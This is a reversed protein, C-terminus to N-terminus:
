GCHYRLIVNIACTKDSGLICSVPRFVRLLYKDVLDTDIKKEGAMGHRKSNMKREIIGPKRQNEDSMRNKIKIIIKNVM